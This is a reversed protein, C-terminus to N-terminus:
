RGYLSQFAMEASRDRLHRWSEISKGVSDAASRESLYWPNSARDEDVLGQAQIMRAVLPLWVAAPVLRESWILRSIRMPHWSELWRATTM